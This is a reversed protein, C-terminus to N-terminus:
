NVSQVSGGDVRLNAGNIFGAVPSVLFAVANAIDDVRGVKALSVTMNIACVLVFTKPSGDIQRFKM